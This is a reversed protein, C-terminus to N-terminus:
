KPLRELVYLILGPLTLAGVVLAAVAIAGRLAVNGHTLFRGVPGIVLEGPATPTDAGQCKRYREDIHDDLDTGSVLGISTMNQLNTM